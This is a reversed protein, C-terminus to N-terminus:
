TSSFPHRSLFSSLHPPLHLSPFTGRAVAHHPLSPGGWRPTAWSRHPAGVVGAAAAAPASVYRRAGIPMARANERRTRFDKVSQSSSSAVSALARSNGTNWISNFVSSFPSLVGTHGATQRTFAPSLPSSWLAQRQALQRLLGKSSSM